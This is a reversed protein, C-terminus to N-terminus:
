DEKFERVETLHRYDEAFDLGYGIVFEPPIVFGVYKIKVNIVRNAPKNLLTCVELSKPNRTKLNKVLYGITRGTDVIDEIILVDKGEINMDLDKYIRVVGSSTTSDGYSSTAMFDFKAPISIEKALDTVFMFAGRLIIVCILDKGEYDQSIQKALEKIRKEIQEKSILVKGVKEDMKNIGKKM